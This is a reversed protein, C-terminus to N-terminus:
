PTFINQVSKRVEHYTYIYIYIYADVAICDSNKIHEERVQSGCESVTTATSYQVTVTVTSRYTTYQILQIENSVM